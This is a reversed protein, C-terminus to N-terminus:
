RFAGDCTFSFGIVNVCTHVTMPNKENWFSRSLTGSIMSCTTLTHM